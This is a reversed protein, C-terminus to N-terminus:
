SWSGEIGSNDLKPEGTGKL